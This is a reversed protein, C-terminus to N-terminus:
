ADQIEVGPFADEYSVPHEPLSTEYLDIAEAQSIPILTDREGQWQTLNVEFYAGNPTRYLFTNRGRREFNHGDWFADHAILTATKTSYKKGGIIKTFNDPPKM